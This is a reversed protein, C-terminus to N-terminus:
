RRHVRHRRSTGRDARSARHERGGRGVIADSLRLRSRREANSDASRSQQHIAGDKPLVQIKDNFAGVKAKDQPLMRIVFQEAAQKVFEMNLTMSGSTDLMVVGTFPTVENVFNTLTQLKGNDYVEFEEQVLDTVLRRQATWSRPTSRCRRPRSKSGSRASGARAVLVAATRSAASRIRKTMPFGALHLFREEPDASSNTRNIPGIADAMARYGAVSPHLQDPTESLMDPKGPAAVAARTDVFAVRRDAEAQRRIWGNIERMKANQEPTATNYPVITGAIVRIGAAAPGTMCGGCSSTVHAGPRGQYVDNVGAILVVLRATRRDRRAPIAAIQDSREGNVGKNLVLWEPHAQMLWYAYSQHRRRARRAAIGGPSQFGPTGATTSDGM